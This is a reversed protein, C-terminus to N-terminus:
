APLDLRMLRGGRLLTVSTADIARVPGLASTGDAETMVTKGSPLLILARLADESGMIGLLTFVGRQGLTGRETAIEAVNDPTTEMQQTSM